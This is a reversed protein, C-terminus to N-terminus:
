AIVTESCAYSMATWSRPQAGSRTSRQHTSVTAAWIRAQGCRGSPHRCGPVARTVIVGHGVEGATGHDARGPQGAQGHAHGAARRPAEPLPDAPLRGLDDGRLELGPGGLLQEADEALELAARHLEALRQRDELRREGLLHRRGVARHQGLQLVASGRKRRRRDVGHQGLLESRSPPAAEDLEVVDGDRGRRDALDVPADPAVPARDRDLDLVGSRARGQEAVEGLDGAHRASAVAHTGPM